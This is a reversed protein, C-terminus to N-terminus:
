QFKEHEFNYNLSWMRGKAENKNGDINGAEVRTHIYVFVCKILWRNMM